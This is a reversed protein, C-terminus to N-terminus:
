QPMTFVQAGPEVPAVVVAMAVAVASSVMSGRLRYNIFMMDIYHASIM